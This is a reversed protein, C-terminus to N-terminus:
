GELWVQVLRLLTGADAPSAVVIVKLSGHEPDYVVDAQVPQAGAERTNLAAPVLTMLRSAFESSAGPVDVIATARAATAPIEARTPVGAFVDLDQRLIRYSKGLKTARLRGQRIARLVTKAHLNLLGAAYEVTCFEPM